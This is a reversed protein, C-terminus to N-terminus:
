WVEVHLTGGRVDAKAVEISIPRTAIGTRISKGAERPPGYDPHTSEVQREKLDDGDSDFHASVFVIPEGNEYGKIAIYTNKGNPLSEQDLAERLPKDPDATYRYVPVSGRGDGRLADRIREIATEEITRDSIGPLVSGLYVTYLAIGTLLAM